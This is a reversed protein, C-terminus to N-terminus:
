TRLRRVPASWGDAAERMRRGSRLAARRQCSRGRGAGMPQRCSVYLLRPTAQPPRRYLTRRKSCGSRTASHKSASSQGSSVVPRGRPAMTALASAPAGNACPWSVVSVPPSFTAGGNTTLGVRDSCAVSGLVNFVGYGRLTNLFAVTTLRTNLPIASRSAM